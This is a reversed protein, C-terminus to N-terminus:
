PKCNGGVIGGFRGRVENEWQWLPDQSRSDGPGVFGPLARAYKKAREARECAYDWEKQPIEKPKTVTKGDSDETHRDMEM